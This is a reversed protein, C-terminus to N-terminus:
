CPLLPQDTFPKHIVDDNKSNICEVVKDQPGSVSADTRLHKQLFINQLFAVLKGM